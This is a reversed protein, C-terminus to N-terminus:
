DPSSASWTAFYDLDCGGESRGFISLRYWGDAAITTKFQGTGSERVVHAGVDGNTAGNWDRDVNFFLVGCKIDAEYDVTFVEGQRLYVTKPGLSWGRRSDVIKSSGKFAYAAVGFTILGYLYALGTAILIIVLVVQLTWFTRSRFLKYM